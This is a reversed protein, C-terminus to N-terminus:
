KVINLKDYNNYMFLSMSERLPKAAKVWDENTIALDNIIKEKIETLADQIEDITNIKLEKEDM